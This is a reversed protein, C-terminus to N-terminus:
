LHWPSIFVPTSIPGPRAVIACACNCSIVRRIKIFNYYRERLIFLFFWVQKIKLTCSFRTKWITFFTSKAVSYRSKEYMEAVYLEYLTTKRTKYPLLIIRKDPMRDGHYFAYSQIWRVCDRSAVSEGRRNEFATACAGSLFKKRVLYYFSKDMNTAMRFCTGCVRRGKDVFFFTTSGVSTSEGFKDILYEFRRQYDKLWFTNRINIYDENTFLNLCRHKCYHNRAKPISSM